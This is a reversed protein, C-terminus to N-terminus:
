QSEEGELVRQQGIPLTFYFTSGTGKESEASIEGGMLDCLKLCISLGLGTGGFKRTTSNDAQIFPQFIKDLQEKTMGIGSDKVVFRLANKGADKLFSLGLSITGKKTFKAANSLLNFLIQHLRVRDSFIEKPLEQHEIVFTNQNKEMLPAVISELEVLMVPLDFSEKYLELKGAEIKSLDLIDNLIMLLHKAVRHIKAADGAIENLDEYDDTDEAIMESYGIIANLPTRLEHSMNALFSSKTESAEIAMDRAKRIEEEQRKLDATAARIRGLMGNFADGLVAFEDRTRIEVTETSEADLREVFGTLQAVPRFILFLVLYLLVFLVIAMFLIVTINRQFLVHQEQIISDKSLQLHIVGVREMRKQSGELDLEDGVLAVVPKTFYLSHGLDKLKIDVDQKKVAQIQKTSGYKVFFRKNSSRTRVGLFKIDSDKEFNSLTRKLSEKSEIVIHYKAMLEVNRLLTKGKVLLAAQLREEIVSNTNWLGGGSFAAFVLFLSLMVKANVSLLIKPKRAGM